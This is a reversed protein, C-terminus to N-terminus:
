GPSTTLDIIESKLTVTDTDTDTITVPTVLDVEVEALGRPQTTDTGFTDDDGDIFRDIVEQLWEVDSEMIVRMIENSQIMNLLNRHYSVIFGNVDQLLGGSDNKISCYITTNNKGAEDHFLQLKRLNEICLFLWGDEVIANMICRSNSTHDIGITHLLEHCATGILTQLNPKCLPLSVCCVCDGCARGMVEFGDEILISDFLGLVSFFPAKKRHILVDFLPFVELKYEVRTKTKKKRTVEIDYKKSDLTFSSDNVNIADAHDEYIVEMMMFQEIFQVFSEMRREHQHNSSYSRSSNGFYMILIKQRQHNLKLRGTGYINPKRKGMDKYEEYSQNELEDGSDELEFYSGPPAPPFLNELSNRIKAKAKAAKTRETTM